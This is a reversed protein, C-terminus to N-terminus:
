GPGPFGRRGAASGAPGRGALRATARDRGPDLHLLGHARGVLDAEARGTMACFSPNVFLIKLGQSGVRRDAIFVGESQARLAAGLLAAPIKSGIPRRLSRPKKKAAPM